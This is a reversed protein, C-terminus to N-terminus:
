MCNKYMRQKTKSFTMLYANNWVFHLFAMSFRSCMHVKQFVPTSSALQITLELIEFKEGKWVTMEVLKPLVAM